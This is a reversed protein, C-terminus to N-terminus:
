AVTGKEGELARVYAAAITPWSMHREYVTTAARSLTDRTGADALLGGIAAVFASPDADPVWALGGCRRLWDDTAIGELALTPVGHQMLAALTTRRASAGDAYPALGATATCLRRSIEAEPLGGLCEVDEARGGAIRQWWDRAEDASRSLWTLPERPGTTARWRALARMVAPHMAAAQGFLLLGGDRPGPPCAMATINSPVPVVHVPTAGLVGSATLQRASIDQAVIVASARAAVRRVRRKLHARLVARRLTGNSPPWYEHITVIVPRGARSVLDLWRAEDRWAAGKPAAPSYQHFVAGVAAVSPWQGQGSVHLSTPAIRQLATALRAAYDGIGDFRGAETAGLVLWRTM